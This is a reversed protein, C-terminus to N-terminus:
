KIHISKLKENLKKVIDDTINLDDDAVILNKKDIVMRINKGKMYDKIIPNLNKLLENRANARQKAVDDLIKKREKQLNNADTRLKDVKKKYEEPTLIKKQNIINKEQERLKKEKERIQNLGKELKNKLATQAKKGAVSENLFYKFDIFFPIEAYLNFSLLFFFLVLLKRM